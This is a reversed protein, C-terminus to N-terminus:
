SRMAFQCILGGMLAFTVIWYGAHVAIYKFGRREFMANIAVIPTALFIAGLVGHFVGHKFTRFNNGYKAMFDTLMSEADPSDAFISYIHAQHIVMSMMLVSIMFGLVYTVIFIVAMNGTKLKDESVEAVRMWFKGFVNPNYWIFGIVLPILASLLLTTLTNM